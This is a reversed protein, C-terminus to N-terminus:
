QKQPPAGIFFSSFLSNRIITKVQEVLIQDEATAKGQDELINWFIFLQDPYHNFKIKLWSSIPTFSDPLQLRGRGAFSANGKWRLLDSKEFCDELENVLKILALQYEQPWSHVPQKMLIATDVVSM